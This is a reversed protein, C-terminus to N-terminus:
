FNRVRDAYFEVERIIGPVFPEGDRMQEIVARNDLAPQYNPDLEVAHEFCAMAESRNGLGAYALAMNGYSQVHDPNENLVRKFLDHSARIAPGYSM